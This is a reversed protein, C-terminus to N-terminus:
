TGAVAALITAADCPKTLLRVDGRDILEDVRTSSAGGTILTFRNSYEPRRACLQIYLDAGNLGPMNVDCLVHDFAPGEIMQALADRPLIFTQVEHRASILASLSRAVLVDDDIVAIRRRPCPGDSAPAPAAATTRRAVPLRVEMRTGRGPRSAASIAGGLEDVIGKCITLGLGTSSGRPKTTFLPEFVRGLDHEAIGRGNDTVAVVVHDGDEAIEIEIRNDPAPGEFADAANLLLNVFVQSLRGPNAIVPSVDATRRVVEAREGLAVGALKLSTDVVDTVSISSAEHDHRAVSLLDRVIIRVREGGDRAAAITDALRQRASPDAVAGPVLEALRELHLLMYTLPNNVEHAVSAALLGIAALRDNRMLQAQWSRRESTDRGFSLVGPRGDYTIPTTSIEMVAISGDKRRGRYERPPLAEGQLIRGMREGMARAEDADLLLQSLPRALLEEATSFGLVRAAAPNAYVFRGGAIVTISDVSAEALTRFRAESERLASAAQLRERIDRVFTVTVSGDGFPVNAMSAEVPVQEGAKNVIVTEVSPPFAGGAAFRRNMEQLREREGPPVLATPVIARIEESTYGTLECFRANSYIRELTTGKIRIITLGLGAQEIAALVTASFEPASVPLDM